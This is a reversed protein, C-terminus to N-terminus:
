ASVTRRLAPNAIADGIIGTDRENFVTGPPVIDDIRDLIDSSLEVDAAGLQSDLHEITRPGIIASSVDPHSLVFGLALHILSLGSEEALVALADAARLKGENHPSDVDFRGPILDARQSVPQEAGLRYNGSLWGAALPGYTLVGLGHARAIPLTEREIGRILISYPVQESVPRELKRKEASWQAEILEGPSFVSTGYYRIKGQHVLDDLAGVTEDIDTQAEPRHVQYLDLHDTNLRRLSDEVARTIWWRSNGQHVPNGDVIGHFKSALIVDDRRGALAKGVIEESEGASYVDATDVVNIGADLARHIIRVSDEHSSNGRVGFNLTGLTFPSVKLGTRGFLRLDTLSM